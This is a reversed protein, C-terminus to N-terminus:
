AFFFIFFYFGVINLSLYITALEAGAAENYLNIQGGRGNPFITACDYVLM